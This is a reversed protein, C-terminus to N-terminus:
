YSGSGIFGLWLSVEYMDHHLEFGDRALDISPQVLKNWPLTGYRDHLAKLGKIEGPVAVASGGKQTSAGDQYFKSTAADQRILERSRTQPLAVYRHRVESLYLTISAM